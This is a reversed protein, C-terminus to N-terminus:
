FDANTKDERSNEAAGPVRRVNEDAINEYCAIKDHFRLKKGYGPGFSLGERQTLALSAESVLEGDSTTRNLKIIKDADQQTDMAERTNGEANVQSGLWLAADCEIALYALRQSVDAVQQQRTRFRADGQIKTLYDVAIVDLGKAHKVKLCLNRISDIDRARDELWFHTERIRGHAAFYTREDDPALAYTQVPTAPVRALMQAATRVLAAKQMECSVYLVHLGDLAAHTLVQLMFRTKGSKERAAVVIMQGREIPSLMANLDAFPTWMLAPAVNGARVDHYRSEIEASLNGAHTPQAALRQGIRAAEGVIEGHIDVVDRGTDAYRERVVEAFLLGERRMTFERLRAAYQKVRSASFTAGLGDTLHACWAAVDEWKGNLVAAAIAMDFMKGARYAEQMARWLARHRVNMFDLESLGVDLADFMLGFDVLLSALAVREMEDNTFQAPSGNIM